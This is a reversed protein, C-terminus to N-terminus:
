KEEKSHRKFDTKEFQENFFHFFLYKMPALRDCGGSVDCAM